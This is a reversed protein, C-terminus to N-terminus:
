PNMIKQVDEKPLKTVQEIEEIKKGISVMEKAVNLLAAKVRM